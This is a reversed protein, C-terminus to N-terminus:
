PRRAAGVHVRIAAAVEEPHTIPAMHGAGEIVVRGADPLRAALAAQTAAIVAPTRGGEILLVPVEVAELRGPGLLGAADDELAPVGAWILHIREM